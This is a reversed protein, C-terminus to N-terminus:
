RKGGGGHVDQNKSPFFTREEMFDIKKGGLPSFCEDEGKKEEGAPSPRGGRVISRKESGLFSKAYKGRTGSASGSEPEPDRGKKKKKKQPAPKEESFRCTLKEERGLPLALAEKKQPVNSKKEGPGSFGREEKKKPGHKSTGGGGV